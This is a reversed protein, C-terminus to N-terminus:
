RGLEVASRDCVLMPADSLPLDDTEGISVNFAMRRFIEELTEYGLGLADATEFLTEYTYLARPGGMPLHM